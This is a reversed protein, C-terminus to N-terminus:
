RMELVWSQAWSPSLWCCRSLGSSATPASPSLTRSSPVGQPQPPIRPDPISEGRQCLSCEASPQPIHAWIQPTHPPLPPFADAKSDQVAHLPWCSAAATAAHAGLHQARAPTQHEGWHCRDGKSARVGGGLSDGGMAVGPCLLALTLELSDWAREFSTESQPTASTTRCPRQQSILPIVNARRRKTQRRTLPSNHHPSPCSKSRKLAERSGGPLKARGREGM